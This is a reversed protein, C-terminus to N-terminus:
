QAVELLIGEGAKVANIVDGRVVTRRTILAHLAGNELTVEYLRYGSLNLMPNIHIMNSNVYLVGIVLFFVALSIAEALSQFPIALFPIVYSVIYSMAEADRRQLSAVKVSIPNLRRATHLYLSVGILGAAGISLVIIAATRHKALLLVFFIVTLPFYSSLFLLSRTLISPM